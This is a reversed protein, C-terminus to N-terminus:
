ETGTARRKKTFDSLSNIAAAVQGKLTHTYRSMTLNIDKHRMVEQIIKPHVGKAALFTGCTHRLSHFKIKGRNNIVEIGVAECDEEIMDASYQPIDFLKVTPMKNATYEKFLTATTESIRQEADDRNKTDDGKVFVTRSSFDFSVPTLSRLEGRRLGTEVALIYVLYREYGTMGYRVPGKNTAELLRQFEDPEFAREVHKSVKQTHINLTETARKEKVMWRAFQRFIKAYRNKTQETLSVQTKIPFHLEAIFLEIDAAKIDSWFAFGCGAAIRRLTSSIQRAHKETARSLMAREFDSIHESLPKSAAVMDARLLGIEAFRKRLKEPAQELWLVLQADPPLNAARFSILRQINRGIEETAVKDPFGAFRRVIENHDRLEIWWKSVKKTKGKKDKYTPKFLRM